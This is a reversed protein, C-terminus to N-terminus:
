QYVLILFYDCVTYVQTYNIILRGRFIKKGTAADNLMKITVPMLNPETFFPVCLRGDGETPNSKSSAANSPFEM